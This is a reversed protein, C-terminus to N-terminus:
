SSIKKSHIKRILRRIRGLRGPNTRPEAKLIDLGATGVAFARAPDSRLEGIRGMMAKRDAIPTGGGHYDLAFAVYGLEDAIRRARDRAHDDLGPGEHCVLVGPRRDGPAGAADDPLALTGIMTRGDAEYTIDRTTAM